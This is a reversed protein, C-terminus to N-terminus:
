AARRRAPITSPPRGRRAHGPTLLGHEQMRRRLQHRDIDLLKATTSQNDHSVELTRVIHEREVEAATLWRGDPATHGANATKAAELQLAAAHFGITAVEDEAVDEYNEATEDHGRAEEQRTTAFAVMGDDTADGPSFLIVREVASELERISGAVARVALRLHEIGKSGNILAEPTSDVEVTPQEIKPATM